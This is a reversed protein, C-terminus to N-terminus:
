CPRNCATRTLELTGATSKRHTPIRVDANAEEVDAFRLRSSRSLVAEEKGARPVPLRGLFPVGATPMRFSSELVLRCFCSDRHLDWARYVSNGTVRMETSWNNPISPVNYHLPQRVISESRVMMKKVKTATIAASKKKM